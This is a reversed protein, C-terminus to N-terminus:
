VVNESVIVKHMEILNHKLYEKHYSKLINTLNEEYMKQTEESKLQKNLLVKNSQLGTLKLGPSLGLKLQLAPKQDAAAGARGSM